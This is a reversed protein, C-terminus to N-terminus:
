WFQYMIQEVERITVGGGEEFDNTIKNELRGTVETQKRLYTCVWKFPM